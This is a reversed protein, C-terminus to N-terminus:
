GLPLVAALTLLGTLSKECLEGKCSERKLNNIWKLDGLSDKVYIKGKPNSVKHKQTCRFLHLQTSNGFNLLPSKPSMGIRLM